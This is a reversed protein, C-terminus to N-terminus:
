IDPLDTEFFTEWSHVQRVIVDNRLRVAMLFSMFQGSCVKARVRVM